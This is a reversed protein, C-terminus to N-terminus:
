RTWSVFRGLTRPLWGRRVAHGSTQAPPLGAVVSELLFRARAPAPAFGEQMAARVQARRQPPLLDLFGSAWPWREISLFCAQLSAPEHGLLDLMTQPTAGCLVGRVDAGPAEQGTIAERQPRAPAGAAVSREFGLENLETLLGRLAVQDNVPLEALIAQRDFEDLGYLALAAQRHGSM